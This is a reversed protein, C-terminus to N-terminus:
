IRVDGHASMRRLARAEGHVVAGVKRPVSGPSSLGGWAAVSVATVCDGGVSGAVRGPSSLGHSVGTDVIVVLPGPKTQKGAQRWGVEVQEAPSRVPGRGFGGRVVVM